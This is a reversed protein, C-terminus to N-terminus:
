ANLDLKAFINANLFLLLWVTTMHENALKQKIIIIKKVSLLIPGPVYLTFIGVKPCGFEQQSNYM